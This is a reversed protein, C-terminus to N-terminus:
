VGGTLDVVEVDELVLKRSGLGAAAAAATPPLARWTGRGGSLCIMRSFSRTVEDLPDPLQPSPLIIAKSVPTHPLLSPASDPPSSSLDIFIPQARPPTAPTALTSTDQQKTPVQKRRSRFATPPQPHPLVMSAPETASERDRSSDTADPESTPQNSAPPNTPTISTQITEEHTMGQPQSIPLTKQSQSSCQVGEQAVKTVKFYCDLAGRKMGGNSAAAKRQPRAKPKKPGCSAESWEKTRLPVGMRVIAELVWIKDLKNPDFLSHAREKSKDTCQEQEEDDEAPEAEPTSDEGQEYDPEEANLDINVIDLPMYGIRVELTGDTSIHTRTNFLEKVLADEQERLESESTSGQLLKESRTRLRSVLLAPALNRIFKIAGSKRNWDFADATFTRLGEVDIDNDWRIDKKLNDIDNRSSVAPNTYYCLVKPDPFTEPIQLASHKVRFFGSENSRLEQALGERWAQLGSKDGKSISCLSKGYGARAAECAVKIGCGPIGAPIYDGGSMLAVLIMGQKDLGSKGARTEAADYLSVHTPTKNGKAGDSSWNRLNLQCGFMLTDVDESLVADVLGNQQFMACEAEAEGPATHFPFGFLKIMQKALMNPLSVNGSRSRKDRKFPPKQPGDFVFIPQITLSLLRLLRYYLTRLAPNTGGKSSQIQFQWISIDIALRLPRGNKEFIELALKSLAIRRGPGIEGYIGRIGM